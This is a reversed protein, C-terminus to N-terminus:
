LVAYDVSHGSLTMFLGKEHGGINDAKLPAASM